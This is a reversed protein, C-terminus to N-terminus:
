KKTCCDKMGVNYFAFAYMDAIEEITKSVPKGAGHGAMTEIRIMVPHKGHYKEQLTAIYKFSHAPVVRDDHDATTVLVAPYEVGEKINHLPSYKYLYHFQVSDESSGYDTVWNWGITFKHFRLMDMVGVSPIAVAFLDPRQNTVAGVLLGGNSGGHIILKDPSTYKKDILYEAAAIFDDFVNQKNLKMGAEHWKRGYEGGGRLNAMAFVVGNEFLVLRAPNFYPKLSINFGGYGYLWAPNNGDLKIDKKHVIFMPIKTGDKSKYFVQETVYNDFDFDISPRFIEESTDNDFDYKYVVSPYLFSTFSYYMYNKDIYANPGGVSGLTPLTLEKIFKGDKNYIYLRDSADKMYKVVMKDNNALVADLLVNETEPLLEKWVPKAPNKLDVAMLKYNEANDNTRVYLVTGINGVVGYEFDFGENLLVFDSKKKLDKVWIRNGMVNRAEEYVILYRGDDTISAYFMRYPDDKNEMIVKDESQPTGLKHYFLKHYENKMTLEKGKAPPTYGSYYFGDKDWSIGTFKAWKITDPLMEGSEIDKVMIERWDSGGKSISYAIYKADQSIGIGSLAITGDESFKNPDILVRPEESEKQVYLISQNLLGPNYFYFTLNGKVFPTSKREYNWLQELREKIKTRYPIKSLYSFTVENQKKIWEKTEPSNEDELWRYPDAVKVGFYDDTVDVKKTHPYNWSSKNEMTTANKFYYFLVVVAVILIVLPYILDKMFNRM